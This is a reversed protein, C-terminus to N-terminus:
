NLSVIAANLSAAYIIWALYPMLLWAAPREVKLAAVITAAIAIALAIIIVLAFWTAHLGFFVPSWIANLALQVMFLIIASRAAGVDRMNEWLLWLSVAMMAYLLTWAVPFAWNPPTWAPKTLSAYWTAIEPRTVFAGAAAVAVCLAVCALLRVLSGLTIGCMSHEPGTAGSDESM